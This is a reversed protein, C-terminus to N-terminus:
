AAPATDLFHQTVPVAIGANVSFDLTATQPAVGGYGNNFGVYVRDKGTDTAANVHPQDVNNTRSDLQTMLTNLRYDAARYVRMSFDPAHLIGTYLTNTTGVTTGSFRMTIDGTPFQAGITSPVSYVLSWNQGGDTSVYIPAANGTMPSGNLNDWTFASGVLQSRNSPNVAIAPESDQTTEGSRSQPVMNVLTVQAHLAPMSVAALGVILTHALIDHIRNM